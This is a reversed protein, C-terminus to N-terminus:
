SAGGDTRPVTTACNPSGDRWAGVATPAPSDLFTGDVSDCGWSDALLLRRLSNVRGMHAWRDRRKAARVIDLAHDSLKWATSGGVFVADVRAWPVEHTTAGDQLVIATPHPAVDFRDFRELTSRWDTVVDPVTAFLAGPPLADLWRRWVAECWAGSFCGNDAAWAREHIRRELGSRPQLMLGVCPTSPLDKRYVGSLYIM